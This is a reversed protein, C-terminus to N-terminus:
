KTLKPNKEIMEKALKQAQAIQEATMKRAFFLTNIRADANGNIAAIKWWVYANVIDKPVGEGKFYKIGLFFQATVNGKLAVKRFWKVAEQNNKPVGEGESYMAGLLFQAQTKGQNAAKLYWTLAKQDDKPVGKGDSYAAGLLFQAAADGQEAAKRYWKAAEKDDKAVGDGDSYIVGLKAQASADGKEALAELEKFDKPLPKDKDGGVVPLCLCLGLIILATKMKGPNLRISEPRYVEKRDPSSRRPHDSPLNHTTLKFRMGAIVGWIKRQM